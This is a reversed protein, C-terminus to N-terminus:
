VTNQKQFRDQVMEFIGDGKSFEIKVLLTTYSEKLVEWTTQLIERALGEIQTRPEKDKDKLLAKVDYLKITVLCIRKDYTKSPRFYYIDVEGEIYSRIATTLKGEIDNLLVKRIDEYLGNIYVDVWEEQGM